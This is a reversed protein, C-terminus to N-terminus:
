TYINTSLKGGCQGHICTQHDLCGSDARCGPVCEQNHCLEGNRCEEDRRCLSKCVGLRDCRENSLCAADSGCLPRCLGHTCAHGILNHSTIISKYVM